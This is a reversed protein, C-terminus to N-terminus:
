NSLIPELEQKMQNFDQYLVAQMGLDQAAVCYREIDDIFVAQEPPVNLRKLMTEYIRPEPKTTGVEYSFVMSDFLAQEEPTLFYDNIWNSAVNSLLGIKYGKQKLEGIYRMLPLNKGDSNEILSDIKEKPVGTVQAVQTIFDERSLFGSSYQRMLEHAEEGQELPLSLRFEHWPDATLVGFCDFIIARVV